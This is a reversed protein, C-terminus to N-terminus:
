IQFVTPNTGVSKNLKSLAQNDVAIFTKSFRPLRM